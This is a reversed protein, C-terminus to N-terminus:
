LPTKATSREAYHTNWDVNAGLRWAIFKACM